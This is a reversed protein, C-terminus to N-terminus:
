CCTLIQSQGTHFYGVMAVGAMSSIIYIAKPRFLVSIWISEFPVPRVCQKRGGRSLYACDQDKVM